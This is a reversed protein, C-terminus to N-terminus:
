VDGLCFSVSSPPFILHVEPWELLFWFDCVWDSWGWDLLLWSVSTEKIKELCYNLPFFYVRRLDPSSLVSSYIRILM